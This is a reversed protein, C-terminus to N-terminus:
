QETLKGRINRVNKDRGWHAETKKEDDSFDFETAMHTESMQSIMKLLADYNAM